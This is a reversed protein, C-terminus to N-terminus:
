CHVPSRFISMSVISYVTDASHQIMVNTYALKRMTCRQVDDATHGDLSVNASKPSRSKEYFFLYALIDYVRKRSIVKYRQLISVKEDLVPM